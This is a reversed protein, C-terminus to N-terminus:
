GKERFAREINEVLIDLANESIHKQEKAWCLIEIIENKLEDM